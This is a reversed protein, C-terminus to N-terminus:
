HAWLEAPLGACRHLLDADGNKFIILIHRHSEDEGSDDSATSTHGSSTTSKPHGGRMEFLFFRKSDTQLETGQYSTGRVVHSANDQISVVSSQREDPASFPGLSSVDHEDFRYVRNIVRFLRFGVQFFVVNEMRGVWPSAYPHSCDAGYYGNFASVGKNAKSSAQRIDHLLLFWYAEEFKTEIEQVIAFGDASYRRVFETMDNDVFNDWLEGFEVNEYAKSLTEIKKRLLDQPQM